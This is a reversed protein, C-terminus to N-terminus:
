SSGLIIEVIKQNTSALIDAIQLIGQEAVNSVTNLKSQKMEKSFPKQIIFIGVGAESNLGNDAPM